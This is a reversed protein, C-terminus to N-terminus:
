RQAPPASARMIQDYLRDTEPGTSRSWARDGSVGRRSLEQQTPQHQRGGVIPSQAAGTSAILLLSLAIALTRVIM